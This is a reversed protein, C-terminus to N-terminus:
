VFITMGAFARIWLNQVQKLDRTERKRPFSLSQPTSYNGKKKTLSKFWIMLFLGSHATVRIFSLTEWLSLSLNALPVGM